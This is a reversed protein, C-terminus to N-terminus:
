PHKCEQSLFEMIWGSDMYELCVTIETYLIGINLKEIICVRNDVKSPFM